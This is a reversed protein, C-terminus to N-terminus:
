ALSPVSYVGAIMVFIVGLLKENTSEDLFVMKEKWGVGFSLFFIM